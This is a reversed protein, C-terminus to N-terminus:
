SNQNELLSATNSLWDALMPEAAKRSIPHFALCRSACILHAMNSDCVFNLGGALESGLMASQEIQRQVGFRVFLIKALLGQEIESTEMIRIAGDLAAQACELEGGLRAREHADVRNNMLAKEALGSVIGLYSATAVIEFWCLGTIEAGAIIEQTEPDDGSSLLVQDESIKVDKFRLEHSDSAALVSTKWFPHRTIGPLDASLIALGTRKFEDSGKEAIGLTIIDMCNTMSCPKKSGNIIYNGASDREVFVTSDLIGAGYRGEAFASAVLLNHKATKQLMDSCAPVVGSLSNCFSITFNHMTLMIAMSPARSGIARQIRIADYANVGKGGLSEPIWISPLEFKRILEALQHPNMKELCELGIEDLKSDLGPVYKELVERAEQMFM